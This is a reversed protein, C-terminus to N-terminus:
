RFAMPACSARSPSPRHSILMTRRWRTQIESEPIVPKMELRPHLIIDAYDYHQLAVLAAYERHLTSLRDLIRM